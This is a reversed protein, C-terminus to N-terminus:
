EHLRGVLGKGIQMDGSPCGQRCSRSCVTVRTELILMVAPSLSESSGM